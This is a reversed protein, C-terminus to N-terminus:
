MRVQSWRGVGGLTLPAARSYIAATGNNTVDRVSGLYDKTLTLATGNRQEGREFARRTVSVVAKAFTRRAALRDREL